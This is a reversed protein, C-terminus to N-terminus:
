VKHRHKLVVDDSASTLLSILYYAMVLQTSQQQTTNSDIPVPQTNSLCLSHPRHLNMFEYLKKKIKATSIDIHLHWHVATRYLDIYLNTLIYM